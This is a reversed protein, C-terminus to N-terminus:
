NKGARWFVCFQELPQSVVNAIQIQPIVYAISRSNIADRQQQGQHEPTTRWLHILPNAAYVTYFPRILSLSINIRSLWNIINNNVLNEKIFKGILLLFSM